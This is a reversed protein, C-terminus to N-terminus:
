STPVTLGLPAAPAPKGWGSGRTGQRQHPCEQPCESETERQAERQEEATGWGGRGGAQRGSEGEGGPEGM